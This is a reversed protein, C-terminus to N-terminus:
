PGLVIMDWYELSPLTISWAVGGDAGGTPHTALPQAMGGAVDPSAWWAESPVTGGSCSLTVNQRVAPAVQQEQDDRWDASPQDLLNILHVVDNGGRRKSFIWIAGSTSVSSSALGAANCQVQPLSPVDRLVNEYGVLFAYEDGLRTQLDSPIGLNHNPFYENDLMQTGDGLELHSAGNAFIAADTLLVGPTNFTGGANAQAYSYNMYAPLITAKGSAETLAVTAQLDSYTAQGLSPWQEAYMVDSTSTAIQALAYNGVDNFIVSKGPLGGKAQNVLSAFGSAVDILTGTATYVTGPNGLSDMQWGDFPYVAFVDQERQIIYSQWGPDGPNFEWLHTTAWGSPFPGAFAQNTANTNQWMGWNWLVGSGDQGYGDWAGYGLNYNVAVMQYSHAAGILDLVTQGVNTRNAIDNWTAAPVATTGALPVHHKWQWDYFQIVDIGYNKLQWILHTSVASAQAAYSSVYGCRPYRRWDSSVDVATSRADLVTGNPGLVAVQMLYGQFDSAPTTWSFVVTSTAGAALSLPQPLPSGIATTLHTLYLTISGGQLDAGSLNDLDVYITVPNGPGYRAQDTNIDVIIQGIQSPWASASWGSADPTGGADNATSADPASGADIATSADVAVGADIAAGADVGGDSPNGPQPSQSCSGGCALRALVLPVCTLHWWRTTNRVLSDDSLLERSKAGGLIEPDAIRV